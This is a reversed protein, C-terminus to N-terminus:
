PKMRKDHKLGTDRLEQLSIAPQFIWWKKHYKGPLIPSSNAQPLTYLIDNSEVVDDGLLM